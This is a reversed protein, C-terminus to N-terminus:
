ATLRRRLLAAHIEVGVDHHYSRFGDTQREGVFKRAVAGLNPDGVLRVGNALHRLRHDQV